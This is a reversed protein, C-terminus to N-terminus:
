ETNEQVRINNRYDTTIEENCVNRLAVLRNALEDFSPAIFKEEIKVIDRENTPHPNMLTVDTIAYMAKKAGVESVFVAPGTIEEVGFDTTIRVTGRAIITLHQTTHIKGTLVVGAPIFLERLYIGEAFHHYTNQVMDIQHPSELIAQELGMIQARPVSSEILSTNM